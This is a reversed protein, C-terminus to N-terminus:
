GSPQREKWERDRREIFSEGKAKGAAQGEEGQEKKVYGKEEFIKQITKRCEEDECIEGLEVEGYAKAERLASILGGPNEKILNGAVQDKYKEDSWLGEEVKPRCNPCALIDDATHGRTESVTSGDRIAQIDPKLKELAKQAARDAFQDCKGDLCADIIQDLENMKDGVVKSTTEEIMELLRKESESRGSM